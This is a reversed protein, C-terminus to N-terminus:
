KTNIVIKECESCYLAEISPKELGSTLKIGKSFLQMIPGKDNEEPIWKIAYRDQHIVGLNMKEGCYPCNSTKEM